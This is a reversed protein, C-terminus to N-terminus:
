AVTEKVTGTFNLLTGVQRDDNDFVNGVADVIYGDPVEAVAVNPTKKKYELLANQSTAVADAASRRRYTKVCSEFTGFHAFERWRKDKCLRANGKIVFIM